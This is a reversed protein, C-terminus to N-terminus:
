GWWTVEAEDVVFDAPTAADLCPAAGTACDIDVIRGCYRRAMHHHNDGVRVEYLAPHGAAEIRRVLRAAGLARLAYVRPIRCM